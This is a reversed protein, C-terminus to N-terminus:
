SAHSRSPDSPLRDTAEAIMARLLEILDESSKLCYHPVSAFPTEDLLNAMMKDCLIANADVLAVALRSLDMSDNPASKGTSRLKRYELQACLRSHGLLAPALEWEGCSIAEVLAACEAHEIKADVLHWGVCRAVDWLDDRPDFAGTDRIQEAISLMSKRRHVTILRQIQSADM